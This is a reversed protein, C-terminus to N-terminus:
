ILNVIELGSARSLNVCSNGIQVIPHALDEKNIFVITGERGDSLTCANSVYTNVIHELFTMIMDPDYKQLGEHSFLDIVQFPCLPGRYVRAATMADYVDAIAVMKAYFNIEPAKSHLPYGSGDCREHHMLAAECIDHDINHNLLTQYGLVTHKKITQFEAPTLKGPKSILEQPVSLKGIDHLLGCTAALEVESDSLKMWQALIRCILSVNISHAFVSDDYDRMNQLLDFMNTGNPLNSLQSITNSYLINPDLMARGSLVLKIYQKFTNINKDYDQQFHKFEESQRVREYHTAFGHAPVEKLPKSAPTEVPKPTPAVVPKKPVRILVNFVGHIAFTSINADTLVSGKPLLLRNNLDFLDEAVIMGPVLQTTLLRKTMRINYICSSIIDIEVNKKKYPFIDFNKIIIRLMRNM